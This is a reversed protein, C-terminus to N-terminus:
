WGTSIARIVLKNPAAVSATYESNTKWGSMKVVVSHAVILSRM